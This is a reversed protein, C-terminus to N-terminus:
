SANRYSSWFSGVSDCWRDLADWTDAGEQHPVGRRQSDGGRCLAGAGAAPACGTAGATPQTSPALWAESAAWLVLVLDM